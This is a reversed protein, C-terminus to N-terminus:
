LTAFSMAILARSTVEMHQSVAASDITQNMSQAGLKSLIIYFKDIIQVNGRVCWLVHFFEDFFSPLFMMYKRETPM